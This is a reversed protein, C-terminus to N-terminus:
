SGCIREAIQRLVLARATPITLANVTFIRDPEHGNKAMATNNSLCEIPKTSLTCLTIIEPAM